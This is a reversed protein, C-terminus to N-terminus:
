IEPETSELENKTIRLNRSRKLGHRNNGEAHYSRLGLKKTQANKSIIRDHTAGRQSRRKCFNTRCSLFLRSMPLIPRACGFAVNLM